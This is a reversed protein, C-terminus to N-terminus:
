KNKYEALLLYFIACVIMIDAINFITFWKLSIYDIVYGYKLRDFLNSSAGLIIFLFALKASFQLKKNILLHAILILIIFFILYNLFIGSLPLSFAIFYNKALSFKLWDAILIYNFQKLSIIKFFRDLTIFFIALLFWIVMKKSFLKNNAIFEM